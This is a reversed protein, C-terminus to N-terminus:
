PVQGLLGVVETENGYPSLYTVYAAGRVQFTYNGLEGLNEYSCRLTLSLYGEGAPAFAPAESSCNGLVIASANYNIYYVGGVSVVEPFPSVYKLLLVPTGNTEVGAPWLGEEAEVYRQFASVVYAGGGLSLNVVVTAPRGVARPPLPLSVENVGCRPRFPAESLESGGLELVVTGWQPPRSCGELSVNVLLSAGVGSVNLLSVSFPPRLLPRPPGVYKSAALAGLVAVAIVLASYALEALEGM